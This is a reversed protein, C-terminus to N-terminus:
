GQGIFNSVSLELTKYTLGCKVRLADEADAGNGLEELLTALARLGCRQKLYHVTAHSQRYALNLSEVDLRELQSESLEELSFLIRNERAHQLLGMVSDDLERSLIEALGENLWWPAKDKALHRVVVHTYEHYLRRRLEDPALVSGDIALLPVRIKTGDYLAGVHDGMQTAHAFGKSDYLSVQIPAPPYVFGLDRGINRYATDLIRLVNRVDERKATDRDYTINFNASSLSVFGIEVEEERVAGELREALGEREPDVEYVWEWQDLAATVDNDKYYAEGLLFHADVNEPELEIAEELRFIAEPVLGERLYYSGLQVLPRVNEPDTQIAEQLTAIAATLNHETAQQQALAQYANSLNKLITENGPALAYAEGFSQVADAWNKANYHEFGLTNHYSADGPEGAAVACWAAMVVAIARM